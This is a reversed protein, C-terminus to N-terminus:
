SLNFIRCFFYYLFSPKMKHKVLYIGKIEGLYHAICILAKRFDKEFGIVKFCYYFKKLVDLSTPQKLNLSDAIFFVQDHAPLNSSATGFAHKILYRMNTKKEDILHNVKLGPASGVFFQKQVATLVMQVDGGSSLGKGTRDSLSYQGKNVRTVYESVIEKKICLGTGPPYFNQWWLLNAVQVQNISKQQFSEKYQQMWKPTNQSTYEVSISGPGWCAVNPYEHILKGLEQLYDRAPENDDDFFIIWDFKSTKFGAIRANTLGPKLEVILRSSYGSNLFEKVEKLEAVRFGSRNDVIIIEYEHATDFKKVAQLLRAFNIRNPNHTCIIISFNM